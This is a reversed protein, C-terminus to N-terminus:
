QKTGCIVQWRLNDFKILVALCPSNPYMVACRAKAMEFVEEDDLLWRAGDRLEVMGRPCHIPTKEPVHPAGPEADTRAQPSVCATLLLVMLLPNRMM